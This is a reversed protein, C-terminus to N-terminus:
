GGGQLLAAGLPTVTHLVSNGDRVTALLGSERLVTAHQSASAASVGVRRALEGTTCGGDVSALVASRTRG